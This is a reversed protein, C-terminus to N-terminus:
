IAVSTKAARASKNRAARLDKARASNIATAEGSGRTAVSFRTYPLIGTAPTKHGKAKPGAPRGITQLEGSDCLVRNKEAIRASKSNPRSSFRKDWASTYSM